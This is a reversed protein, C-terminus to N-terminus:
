RGSAIAAVQDLLPLVMAAGTGEGHGLGVEFIPQLGLYALIAPHTFTGRHAAILYGTVPPAMAAAVLAAAGTAYSDLIVPVNMSAAGLILGALVATEAGGFTALVELGSAGRMELGRVGAAEALDDDLGGPVDGSIAALLAASAVESGVGIAGLAIADLAPGVAAEIADPHGVTPQTVSAHGARPQTVSAHGAIPQTVGARGAIPQTVGARGAMPQTVGAREDLGTAEPTVGPETGIAMDEFSPLPAATLPETLSIALAIGAELGLVADVITMAPERMLDRSPGRGLSVAIDPMHGPERAGADVIVIPTHNASRAIQCLAASGAAIERAAIVSPHDAGMALGPDGCGHDGVAVVIRRRTGRPVPSHQAGGLARALRELVTAGAAVVRNQAAEANVESAPGIADIVHQLVQSM